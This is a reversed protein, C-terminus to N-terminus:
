PTGARQVNQTENSVAGQQRLAEQDRASQQASQLEAPWDSEDPRLQIARTLDAVALAYRGLYSRTIGRNYLAEGVREAENPPVAVGAQAYQGLVATFLPEAAALNGQQVLDYGQRCRADGNCDEFEVTVAEQWPLIVRAFHELNVARAQALVADPNIYDPPRNENGYPSELGVTVVRNTYEYTQDFIVEGSGGHTVSFQVRSLGDGVRRLDTCAYTETRYNTTGNSNRGAEVQRSCTRNNREIGERYDNGLVAGTIVVGGGQAVLRISRNLSNAIRGQLNASIEAAAQLYGPNPAAIPGVTMTNGVAAANLMAPRTVNFTATRACGAGASAAAASFTLLALRRTTSMM